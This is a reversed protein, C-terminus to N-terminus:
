CCYMVLLQPGQGWLLSFYHNSSFQKNDLSVRHTLLSWLQRFFYQGHIRTDMWLLRKLSSLFCASFALECTRWVWEKIAMFTIPLNWSPVMKETWWTSVGWVCKTAFLDKNSWAISPNRKTSCLYPLLGIWLLAFHLIICIQFFLYLTLWTM